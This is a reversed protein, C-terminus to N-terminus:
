KGIKFAYAIRAAVMGESFEFSEFGEYRLGFDWNNNVYGLNPAYTFHNGFDKKTSFSVGVEPQFYFADGFFLKAGAKLPILDSSLKEGDIEEKGAFGYYGTTLTISISKSLDHQLRLDPAIVFDGLASKTPVGLSLGIGLRTKSGADASQAFAGSFQLLAIAAVAIIGKLKYTKM